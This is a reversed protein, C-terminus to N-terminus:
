IAQYFDTRSAQADCKADTSHDMTCSWVEVELHSSRNLQAPATRCGALRPPLRWLKAAVIFFCIEVNWPPCVNSMGASDPEAFRRPVAVISWATAELSSSPLTLAAMRMRIDVSM